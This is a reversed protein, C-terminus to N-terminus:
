HSVGVSGLYGALFSRSTMRGHFLHHTSQPTRNWLVISTAYCAPLARWLARASLDVGEEVAVPAGAAENEVLASRTVAVRPRRCAELAASQVHRLV